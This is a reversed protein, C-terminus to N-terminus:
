YDDKEEDALDKIGEAQLNSTKRMKKEYVEVGVAGEELEFDYDKARLEKICGKITIVVEQGLKMDVIDEIPFDVHMRPIYNSAVVDKSSSPELLAIQKKKNKGQAKAM